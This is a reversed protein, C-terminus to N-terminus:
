RQAAAMTSQGFRLATWDPVGNFQVLLNEDLPLKRKGRV